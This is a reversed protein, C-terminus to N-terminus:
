YNTEQYQNLAQLVTALNLKTSITAYGSEVLERLLQEAKKYNQEANQKDVAAQQLQIDVLMEKELVTQSKPLAQCGRELIKEAYTTDEMNLATRAAALYAHSLLQPDTVEDLVKEYLALAESNQKQLSKIEAAVLDCDGSSAGREQLTELTSQAEKIKGDNALAIAFSRYSNTSAGQTSVATQLERVANAYDKLEIYCNGKIFHMQEVSVSDMNKKTLNGSSVASDLQDIASQYDGARYLLAAMQLYADARGPQQQIASDLLERATDYELDQEAQDAQALNLLYVNERESRMREVGYYCSYASAAFCAALVVATVRKRFQCKKYGLDMQDINKLARLMESAQQFRRTQQKQMARVIITQMSRSIKPRYHELPTVEGLSKEPAHGTVAYYLTAGVAYLDTAMSISGYQMCMDTYAANFADRVTSNAALSATLSELMDRFQKRLVDRRKEALKRSRVPLFVRGAILGVVVFAAANSIYTLLTPAGDEQFLGGYFFQSVVGGILFALIFYLVQEGQTMEYNHYDLVQENLPNTMWQSVPEKKPKAPRKTKPKAANKEKKM